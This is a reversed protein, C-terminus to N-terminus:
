WMVRFQALSMAEQGTHLDKVVVRLAKPGPMVRALDLALFLPEWDRSGKQDYTVATAWDVQEPSDGDALARVQFTLEYHTGGFADRSLNYVEFYVVAQGSNEYQELPNSLVMYRNRGFPRDEREVVRRALLVDSLDLATRSFQRVNLTDRFAGLSQTQPDEVEAAVYYRGPRLNLWEGGLVYGARLADYQVFPLQGVRRVERRLTDWDAGFLFVGQNVRVDRLGSVAGASTSLEEVPLAYYVEVRATDAEGRFQAVQFPAAYRRMRYPDRYDDPKREVLQKFAMPYFNGDLWGLRFQWYDRTDPNEFMLTFGEYHWFERRHSYQQSMMAERAQWAVWDQLYAPLDIGTHFEAPLAVLSIPHGYRIYAQGKDTFWGARGKIPDGFRLDAYAVRRCHELLRENYPTLFLPDRGTWFKRIAEFDPATSDPDAMLFVGMMFQRDGTAMRNLGSAYAAYANQLDGTGQHGLGLFFHASVADPHRELYGEFLGILRDSMRGEHYVLGLLHHSPWHEPDLGVARTLYGIAADRAEIGYEELSFAAMTPVDEPNGGYNVVQREANLYRTMEWMQFRGAWYLPLANDPDREIGRRAYQIATTRRGIRWYYEAISALFTGNNPERDMARRLWREADNVSGLSGSEMLLRGLAHMARGSDDVRVAERLMAEREKEVRLTDAALVLLSDVSAWAVAPAFLMLWVCIRMM